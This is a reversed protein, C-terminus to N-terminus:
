LDTSLSCTRGESNILCMCPPLKHVRSELRAQMALLLLFMFMMVLTFFRTYFRCSVDTVGGDACATSFVTAAAVALTQFIKVM